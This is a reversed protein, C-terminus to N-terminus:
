IEYKQEKIISTIKDKLKQNEALNARFMANGSLEITENSTTSQWAWTETKYGTLDDVMDYIGCLILHNSLLYKINDKLYFKKTDSNAM